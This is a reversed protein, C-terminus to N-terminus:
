KLYEQVGRPINEASAFYKSCFARLWLVGFYDLPPILSQCVISVRDWQEGQHGEAGQELQKPFPRYRRLKGEATCAQGYDRLFPFTSLVPYPAIAMAAIMLPQGRCTVLVAGRTKPRRSGPVGPFNELVRWDDQYSFAVDEEGRAHRVVAPLAPSASGDAGNVHAWQPGHAHGCSPVGVVRQTNEWV